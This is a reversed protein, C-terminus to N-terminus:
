GDHHNPDSWSRTAFVDDVETHCLHNTYNSITKVAIALVIQLVAEQHYGANTFATLDAETPLGRREVMVRTFEALAHLEPDPITDGARIADTVESPVGAMDAVASHAAMCYTCGNVRSIVLLVTEQQAPSFGSSSRFADYGTLYTDLLGPVNAMYRYMNPLMGTAAKAKTLAAAVEPEDDHEDRAPLDLARESQAM